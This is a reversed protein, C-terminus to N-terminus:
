EPLPIDLDVGQNLWDVVDDNTYRGRGPTTSLQFDRLAISQVTKFTGILEAVKRGIHSTGWPLHFIGLRDLRPAQIRRSWINLFDDDALYLVRLRPMHLTQGPVAKAKLELKELKQLCKTLFDEWESVYNSNISLVRLNPTVWENSIWNRMNGGADKISLNNLQPFHLQDGSLIPSYERGFDISLVQTNVWSGRILPRRDMPLFARTLILVDLQIHYLSLDFNIPCTLIKLSPLHEVIKGNDRYFEAHHGFPLTVELRTIYSAFEHATGLKNYIMKHYTPSGALNLRLHSWLIPMGIAYWFKCVLVIAFRTGIIESLESSNPAIIISPDDCKMINHASGETSFEDKGPISTALMFIERWLEVPLVMSSPNPDSLVANVGQPESSAAISPTGTVPNQFVVGGNLSTDTIKYGMGIDRKSKVIEKPSTM